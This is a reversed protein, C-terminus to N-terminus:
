CNNQRTLWDSTNYKASFIDQVTILHNFIIIGDLVRHLMVCILLMKNDIEIIFYKGKLIYRMHKISAVIAYTEGEESYGVQIHYWFVQLLLLSVNMCVEDKNGTVISELGGQPTQEIYLWLTIRFNVAIANLIDAKFGEFITRYDQALDKM